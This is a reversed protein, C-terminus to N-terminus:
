SGLVAQGEEEMGTGLELNLSQQLYIVVGELNCPKKREFYERFWEQM